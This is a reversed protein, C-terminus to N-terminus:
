SIERLRAIGAQYATVLAPISAPSTLVAVDRPSTAFGWEILVAPRGRHYKLVHYARRTWNDPIAPIGIQKRRQLEAPASRMIAAAVERSRFCGPLYFVILGDVDPNSQGAQPHPKGAEKHGLPYIEPYFIGNVHHSVVLDAKFDAAIIGREALDLDIDESRTLISKVYWHSLQDQCSTTLRLVLEAEIIGGHQIGRDRPGGHGPDDVVTLQEVM